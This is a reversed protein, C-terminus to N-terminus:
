ESEGTFDFTKPGDPSLTVPKPSKTPPVTDRPTGPSVGVNKPKGTVKEVVGGHKAPSEDTVSGDSIVSIGQWFRLKANRESSFNKVVGREKMDKTFSKQSGPEEGEDICWSEWAEFFEM